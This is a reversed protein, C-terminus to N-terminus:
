SGAQLGLSLQDVARIVVPRPLLTLGVFSRLSPISPIFRGLVSPLDIGVKTFRFGVLQWRNGLCLKGLKGYEFERESESHHYFAERWFLQHEKSLPISFNEIVWEM